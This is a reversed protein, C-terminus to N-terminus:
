NLHVNIYVPLHDSPWLGNSLKTDLHKYENVLLDKVFIYDIRRNLPASVDFGSFTGIPGDFKKKAVLQGDLLSRKIAEIPKSQPECNLDGMFIVPINKSNIAKIKEHILEASKFRAEEGMHDFHTNFVYFKKATNKSQFLGYTCIRNLAADWGRSPIDPTPSLWFTDSSILDLTNTNYFISSYEGKGNNDRDVGIMKFGNLSSKIYDLQHELGEQTGIIDINHKTLIKVLGEKRNDWINIGDNPADYRINYSMAVVSTTNEQCSFIPLLVLCIFTLKKM